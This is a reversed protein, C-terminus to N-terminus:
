SAAPLAFLRVMLPVAASLPLLMWVLSVLMVGHRPQLEQRFLRLRWWFWAGVLLTGAMALPYVHWVGDGTWLSVALPLGMSLSFIMVLIGLVRLVPFMDVM